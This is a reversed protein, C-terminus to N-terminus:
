MKYGNMFRDVLLNVIDELKTKKDTHQFILMILGFYTNATMARVNTVPKIVKTQVGEVIIHDLVLLESLFIDYYKQISVIEEETPPNGWRVVVDYEDDNEHRMLKWGNTGATIEFLLVQWIVYNRELFRLVTSYYARLKDTFCIDTKEIAQLEEVFPANKEKVLTYFLNEKNKYYKYVTGKGTDAIRIIEDLTAQRYGKRSFVQEAAAM